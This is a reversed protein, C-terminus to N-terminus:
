RNLLPDFVCIFLKNLKDKDLEILSKLQVHAIIYKREASKYEEEIKELDIQKLDEEDSYKIYIKIKLDYAPKNSVLIKENNQRSMNELKSYSYKYGSIASNVDSLVANGTANSGAGKGSYVLKGSFEGEVEISNYEYNINYLTDNKNIFAPIVFANLKGNREILYSVLKIKSDFKKAYNIDSLNINQIGSNFVSDPKLIIGFSHASLICTKYKTDYGLVDLLPNTEAFGLQQTKVLAEDYSLDGTEMSTLIYNTSSNLVGRINIIKETRYYDELTRIIPITGACAGEYLLSGNYQKQLDYLAELNEAVTKKNASIVRKGKKLSSSIIEFAIKDDDILEVIPNHKGNQLIDNKEYTLYSSPINREKHRSKICIKNIDPFRKDALKVKSNALANYLGQGVCGFGFLGISYNINKNDKDYNSM